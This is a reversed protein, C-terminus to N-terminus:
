KRITVDYVLWWDASPPMPAKAGQMRSAFCSAERGGDAVQAEAVSGDAAIRVLLTRVVSDTSSPLSGVCSDIAAALRSGLAKTSTPTYAKGDATSENARAQALAGEFEALKAPAAPASELRASNRRCWDAYHQNNPRALCEQYARLAADGDGVGEYAHGLLYQLNPFDDRVDRARELHATADVYRGVKTALRGAEFDIAGPPIAIADSESTPLAAARELAALARRDLHNTELAQALLYPFSPDKPARVAAGEALTASFAPESSMLARAMAAVSSGSLGGPRALAALSQRAFDLLAKSEPTSPHSEVHVVVSRWAPASAAPDRATAVVALALPAQPDDPELAQWVTLSDAAAALDNSLLEAIALNHAVLADNADAARARRFRELAGELDQQRIATLGCNSLLPVSTDSRAVLKGCMREAEPDAAIELFHRLTQELSGIMEPSPEPFRLLTGDLEAFFADTERRLQHLELLCVHPRLLTPWRAVVERLVAVAQASRAPDLELSPEGNKGSKQSWEVYVKALAIRPPAAAPAEAVAARALREAEPFNRADLASRIEASVECARTVRVSLLAALVAFLWLLTRM